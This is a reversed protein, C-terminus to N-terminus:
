SLNQCQKRKRWTSTSTRIEENIQCSPGEERRVKRKGEGGGM